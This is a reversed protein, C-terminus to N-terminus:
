NEMIKRALALFATEVGVGTKASTEIIHWGKQGLADREQMNIDWQEVLDVKNLLFIHPVPRGIFEQARQHIELAKYLTDHRTGDAVLLYGDTGRLYSKRLEQAEAAGEIDWLMLKLDQGDLQVEKRDVKVGVTTHYKDSFRSAIFQQVLSTKGVAFTGLMCIKKQIM